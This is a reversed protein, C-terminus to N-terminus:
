EGANTKKKKKKKEPIQPAHSLLFYSVVGGVAYHGQVHVDNGICTNFDAYEDLLNCADVQSQQVLDFASQSLGRTLCEANGRTLNVRLDYTLETFPGDVVCGNSDTLNSGFGTSANFVSAESLPGAAYDAQEDWYPLPGTYACDTALLTEHVKM